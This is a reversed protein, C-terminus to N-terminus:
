TQYNGAILMIWLEYLSFSERVLADRDLKEIPEGHNVSSLSNLTGLTQRLSNYILPAVGLGSMVSRGASKAAVEESPPRWGSWIRM